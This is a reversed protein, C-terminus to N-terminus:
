AILLMIANAFVIPLISAIVFILFGSILLLKRGLTDSSVGSCFNGIAYALLYIAILNKSIVSSIHLSSSIAPLSPALLDVGMGVLPFFSLLVWVILRVRKASSSPTFNALM